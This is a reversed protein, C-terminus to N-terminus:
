SQRRRAFGIGVLGLGFLVIISPEPVQSVDNWNIQIFDSAGADINSWSVSTQNGSEQGYDLLSAGLGYSYVSLLEDSVYGSTLLMKNTNAFITDGTSGSLTKYNGFDGSFVVNGINYFDTAGDAWIGVYGNSSNVVDSGNSTSSFGLTSNLDITGQGSFTTNSGDFDADIIIGANVSFTCLWLVAAIFSVQPGKM